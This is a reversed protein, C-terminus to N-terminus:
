KKHPSHDKPNRNPYHCSMCLDNFKKRLLAPAPSETEHLAHCTGCTLKGDKSLPLDEPPDGEHVVGTPHSDEGAQDDHCKLCAQSNDLLPAMSHSGHCDECELKDHPRAVPVAEPPATAAAGVTQASICLLALLILLPFIASNRDLASAKRGGRHAPKEM